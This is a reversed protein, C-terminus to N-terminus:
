PVYHYKAHTYYHESLLKYTNFIADLTEKNTYGDKDIKNFYTLSFQKNVLKSTYKFFMTKIISISHFYVSLSFQTM